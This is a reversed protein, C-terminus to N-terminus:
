ADVARAYRSGDSWRRGGPPAVLRHVTYIYVYIYIHIYIHIYIYIKEFVGDTFKANVNSVRKIKIASIANQCLARLM